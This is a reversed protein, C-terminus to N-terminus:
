ARNTRKVYFKFEESYENAADKDSVVLVAKLERENCRDQIATLTGPVDIEATVTTGLVPTVETWDQLTTGTTECTLRWHVTGPLAPAGNVDTIEATLEVGSREKYTPVAM